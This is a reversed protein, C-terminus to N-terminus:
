SGAGWADQIAKTYVAKVDYRGEQGDSDGLTYTIWPRPPLVVTDANKNGYPQIVGGDHTITAYPANYTIKTKTQTKGFSTAIKLSDRLRGTDILSRTGSTRMQGGRSLYNYKPNFPGWIAQSMSKDLEVPLQKEVDSSGKLAGKTIAGAAAKQEKKSQTPDAKVSPMKFKFSFDYKGQM